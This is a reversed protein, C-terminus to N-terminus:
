IINVRWLMLFLSFFFCRLLKQPPIGFSAVSEDKKEDVKRELRKMTAAPGRSSYRGYNRPAPASSGPVKFEVGGAGECGRERLKLFLIVM